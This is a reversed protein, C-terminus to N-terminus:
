LLLFSQITNAHSVVLTDKTDLTKTEQKYRFNQLRQLADTKTIQYNLSLSHKLDQQWEM